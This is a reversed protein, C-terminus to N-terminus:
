PTIRQLEGRLGELVEKVRQSHEPGIRQMLKHSDPMAEMDEDRFEYFVKPRILIANPNADPAELVDDIANLVVEHFNAKEAGHEAYATEMLPLFRQYWRALTAPDASTLLAVYPDYRRYNERTLRYQQEAETTAEGVREVALPPRPSVVPRYEHVIRGEDVSNVARVFKRIIEDEVLLGVLEEDDVIESASDRVADDSQDLPPLPEEPEPAPEPAPEPEPEPEPTPPPEDPVTPYAPDPSPAPEPVEGRGVLFVVLGILLIAVIAVTIITAVPPRSRKPAQRDENEM